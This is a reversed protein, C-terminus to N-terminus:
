GSFIWKMVRIIIFSICLQYCTFQCYWVYFNFSGSLDERVEHILSDLQQHHDILELVAQRLLIKSGGSLPSRSSRIKRKDIVLFVTPHMLNLNTNQLIIQFHFLILHLLTLM